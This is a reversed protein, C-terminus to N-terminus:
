NISSHSIIYYWKTHYRPIIYYDKIHYFHPTPVSCSYWSRMFSVTTLGM